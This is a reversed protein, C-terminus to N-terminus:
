AWNRKLPDFALFMEGPLNLVVWMEREETELDDPNVLVAYPEVLFSSLNDKKVGHFNEFSDVNNLREKVLIKVDSVNM